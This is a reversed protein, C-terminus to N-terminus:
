GTNTASIVSSVASRVAAVDANAARARARGSLETIASTPVPDCASNWASAKRSTSPMERRRMKSVSGSAIALSTRLRVGRPNSISTQAVAASAARPASM